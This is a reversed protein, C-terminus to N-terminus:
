AIFLCFPQIKGLQSCERMISHSFGGSHQGFLLWAYVWLLEVLLVMVEQIPRHNSDSVLVGFVFCLFLFFCFVFFM